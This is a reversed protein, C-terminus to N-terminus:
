TARAVPVRPGSYPASKVAVPSSARAAAAAQPSMVAQSPLYRAVSPPQGPAPPFIVTQFDQGDTVVASNPDEGTSARAVVSTVDAACSYQGGSSRSLPPAPTVYSGQPLAGSGTGQYSGTIAAYAPLSPLLPTVVHVLEWNQSHSWAASPRVLALAGPGSFNVSVISAAPKLVEVVSLIALMDAGRAAQDEQSSSYSKRPQIVIENPTGNGLLGSFVVYGELGQWTQAAPIASWTPYQGAVEEWTQFGPAPGLANDLLRWTEYVQCTTGTVAEALARIGPVTGGLTIAKALAIVRERFRSDAAEVEDWGDPSALDSYPDFPLGTSPNDPLTGDPGRAAGFLAGYFSDLDYFRTSTIAQQLRAVMQRKRLQGTGSAGLLAQMVRTLLSGPSLDYVEPPFNAMQPALQLDPSMLNTATTTGPPLPQTAPAQLSLVSAQAVSPYSFLDSGGNTIVGPVLTPDTVVQPM